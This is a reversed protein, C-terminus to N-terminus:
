VDVAAWGRKALEAFFQTGPDRKEPSVHFHGVTGRFNMLKAAPIVDTTKPFQRPLDFKASLEEARRVMTEIQAPYFECARVKRGHIVCEYRPRNRLNVLGDGPNAVEFGYSFGNVYSAHLTVTNEDEFQFDKGDRDIVEHVSLGRNALTNHVQLAGGEGGTWHFVLLRVSQKPLRPRTTWAM